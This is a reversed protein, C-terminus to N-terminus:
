GYAAVPSAAARPVRGLAFAIWLSAIWPASVAPAGLSAPGRFPDVLLRLLGFGGLVIPLVWPDSLRRTVAALVALGAIEYLPAPHNGALAWPLESPIGRCCGAALCGLRAVALAPLLTRFAAAHPACALLGLPVFLVCFGTLPHALVQPVARVQPLYLLSWGLHALVAGLGLGAALRLPHAGRYCALATWFAASLALAQVVDGRM